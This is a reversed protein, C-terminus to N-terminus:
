NLVMRPNIAPKTYANERERVTVWNIFELCSSLKRALFKSCCLKLLLEIHILTFHHSQTAATHTSTLLTPTAVQVWAREFEVHGAVGGLYVRTWLTSAAEGESCSEPTVHGIVTAVPLMHTILTFLPKDDFTPQAPTPTSKNMLQLPLKFFGVM